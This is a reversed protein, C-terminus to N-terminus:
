EGGAILFALIGLANACLISLRFLKKRETVYFAAIALPVSFLHPFLAGEAWGLMLSTLCALGYVSIHFVTTVNSM